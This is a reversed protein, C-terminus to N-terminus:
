RLRWALAKRDFDIVKRKRLRQLAHDVERFEDNQRHVYLLGCLSKFTVCYDKNGARGASFIGLIMTELETNDWKKETKMASM